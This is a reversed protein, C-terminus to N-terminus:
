VGLRVGSALVLPTISARPHLARLRKFVRGFPEPPDLVVDEARAASHKVRVIAVKTMPFFLKQSM